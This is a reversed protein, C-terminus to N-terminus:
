RGTSYQILRQLVISDLGEKFHEGRNLLLNSLDECIDVGADETIELKLIVKGPVKLCHFHYLHAHNQPSQYFLIYSLNPIHLAFISCM